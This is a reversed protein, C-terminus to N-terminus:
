NSSATYICSRNYHLDIFRGESDLSRIIKKIQLYESLEEHCMGPVASNMSPLQRQVCVLNLSYIQLNGLKCKRQGPHVIGDKGMLEDRLEESIVKLYHKM